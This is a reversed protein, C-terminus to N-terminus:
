IVDVGSAEHVSVDFGAVDIQHHISGGFDSIEANRPAGAAVSGGLMFFFCAIHGSAEVPSRLNDVAGSM